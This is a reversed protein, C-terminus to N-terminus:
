WPTQKKAKAEQQVNRWNFNIAPLLLVRAAQFRTTENYRSLSARENFM